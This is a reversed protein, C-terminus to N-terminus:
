DRFVKIAPVAKNHFDWLAQNEWSSGNTATNGYMSIWEAGWYCFGSGKPIDNVITKLQMLFDRQGFITASYAPIVQSNDGIINNTFDNYEYTFPYATEAIVVPKNKSNSLNTLSTKLDALNKGHWVPYYSVAMIDYDVAAMTTFFYDAVDYGACHLMIKCGPAFARVAQTGANLLEKLQTLNNMSGEPYLFGNNIENGIQIYDPNIETAIKKTYAFVSDKLQAFTISSWAAPKAQHGPDAWTDSYHVSLWVKMGKNKIEQALTKVTNYSSANSSPDKWLRLRICTAGNNKLTQLMDEAQGNENKIVLGSTRVEPLFSMDAAKIELVDPVVVPADGKSKSCSLFIIAALFLLLCNKM